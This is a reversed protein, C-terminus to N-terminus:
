PLSDIKLNREDAAAIDSKFDTISFNENYEESIISERADVKKSM